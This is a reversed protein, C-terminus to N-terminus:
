LKIIIDGESTIAGDQDFDGLLCVYSGIQIYHEGVPVSKPEVTDHGAIPTIEPQCQLGIVAALVLVLSALLLHIYRKM